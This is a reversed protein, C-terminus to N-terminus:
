KGRNMYKILNLPYRPFDLLSHIFVHKYLYFKFLLRSKNLLKSYFLNYQDKDYDYMNITKNIWDLNIIIKDYDISNPISLRYNSPDSVIPTYSVSIQGDDIEILLILSHLTFPLYGQDFIFNGLSYIILKNHYKEYGQLVHSHGGIIIDAGADILERGICIQKESPISVFEDGWHVSLIIYDASSEIERIKTKIKMMNTAYWYPPNERYDNILSFGIFAIRIGQIEIWKVDDPLGVADIHHENLADITYQFVADGNETIHNNAINLVNFGYHQLSDLVHKDSLFFQNPNVHESVPAELNGFIIDGSLFKTVGSLIPDIGNKEIKSRVGFGNCAPQEGLM